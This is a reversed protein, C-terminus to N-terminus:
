LLDGGELIAVSAVTFTGAALLAKIWAVVLEGWVMALERWEAMKTVILEEM